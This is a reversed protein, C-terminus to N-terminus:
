EVSIIKVAMGRVLELNVIKGKAQQLAQRLRPSGSAPLYWGKGARGKLYGDPRTTIIELKGGIQCM